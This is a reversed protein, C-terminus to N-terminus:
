SFHVTKAAEFAKFKDDREEVEDHAQARVHEEHLQQQDAGVLAKRSITKVQKPTFSHNHKLLERRENLSSGTWLTEITDAVARSRNSAAAGIGLQVAANRVLRKTHSRSLGKDRVLSASCSARTSGARLDAAINELQSARRARFDCGSDFSEERREFGSASFSIQRAPAVAPLSQSDIWRAPFRCSSQGLIRSAYVGSSFIHKCPM